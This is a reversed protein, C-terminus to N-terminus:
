LGRSRRPDNARKRKGPALKRMLAQAEEWMIGVLKKKAGTAVLRDYVILHAILANHDRQRKSDRKMM